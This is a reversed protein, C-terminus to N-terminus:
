FTRLKKSRVRSDVHHGRKAEPVVIPPLKELYGVLGNM